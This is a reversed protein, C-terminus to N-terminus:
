QSNVLRPEPRDGNFNIAISFGAGAAAANASPPTDYQAWRMTSKILDARVAPPTNPDHMLRWSTKLLEEAQLKAKVRFSMGEEKLMEVARQLDALFTPDHRILEWEDELIGYAECVDRTSSTRMAIEIPLTPPYGLRAPDAPNVPAISRPPETLLGRAGPQTDPEDWADINCLSIM